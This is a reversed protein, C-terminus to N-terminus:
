ASIPIGATFYGGRVMGHPSMMGKFSSGSMGPGARRTSHIRIPMEAGGRRLVQHSIRVLPMLLPVAPNAEPKLQNVCCSLHAGRQNQQRTGSSHRGPRLVLIRRVATAPPLDRLSTGPLVQRSHVSHCDSPPM